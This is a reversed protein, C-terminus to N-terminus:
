RKRPTTTSAPLRMPKSLLRNIEDHLFGLWEGAKRVRPLPIAHSVEASPYSGDDASVLIETAVARGSGPLDYTEFTIRPRNITFKPVARVKDVFAEAEKTITAKTM